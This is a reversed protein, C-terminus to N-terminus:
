DPESLVMIFREFAIAIRPSAILWEPGGVCRVRQRRIAQLDGVRSWASYVDLMARQDPPTRFELIMDPDVVRLVELPIEGQSSKLLERAANHHGADEVLADLFLGPGAVFVAQPPVPLEGFLVLVRRPPVNLERAATRLREMDQRIASVLVRATQPRDCWRGVQEIAVFLEELGEHPVARCPLALRTLDAVTSGSNHTALVLDPDLSKILGYNGEGLVGVVPVQEIGPPWACHRTRGVLRDRLGLACVIETLSPALSIIRQPGAQAESPVIIPDTVYDLPRVLEATLREDAQRLQQASRRMALHTKVRLGIPISALLVILLIYVFKRM